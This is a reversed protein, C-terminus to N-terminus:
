FALYNLFRQSCSLWLDLYSFRCHVSIDGSPPSGYYKLVTLRFFVMTYKIVSVVPHIVDEPVLITGWSIHRGLSLLLLTSIYYLAFSANNTKPIVVM